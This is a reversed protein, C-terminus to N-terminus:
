VIESEAHAVFEDHSQEALVTRVQHVQIKAFAVLQRRVREVRHALAAVDLVEVQGLALGDVHTAVDSCQGTSTNM